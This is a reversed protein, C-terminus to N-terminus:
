CDIEYVEYRQAGIQEGYIRRLAPDSELAAANFEEFARESPGVVAHTAGYERALGCVGRGAYFARIALVRDYWDKRGKVWGIAPFGLVRVRGVLDLAHPGGFSALVATQPLEANAWGAFAYDEGSYLALHENQYRLFSMVGPAVAILLLVTAAAALLVRERGSNRQPNREASRALKRAQKGSGCEAPAALAALSALAAGALAFTPIEWFNIIKMNNVPDPTFSLANAVVFLPVFALYYKKVERKVAFFGAAAFVLPLGLARLWFLAIKLPNASHAKWGLAVSVYNANSAGTAVLPMAPAALLLAPAFFAAWDFFWKRLNKLDIFLLALFGAVALCAFFATERMLPTLGALSGAALLLRRKNKKNEEEGANEGANKRRVAEFLLVFVVLAVPYGFDSSRQPLLYAKTFQTINGLKGNEELAAYDNQPHQLWETLGQKVADEYMLGYAFSGSFFLLAVAFFAANRNRTLRLVFFYFVAYFVSIMVFAPFVFALPFGFGLRQLMASYYDTLFSYGVPEGAYQPDQLPKAESFSFYQTLSVHYYADAYFDSTVRLNGSEDFRVAGNAFFLLLFLVFPLFRPWFGQASSGGANSGGSKEVTKRELLLWVVACGLILVIALAANMGVATSLAFAALATLPLGLALAAFFEEERSEAFRIARAAAYGFAISVAIFLLALIM